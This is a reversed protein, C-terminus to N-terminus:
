IVVVKRLGSIRLDGLVAVNMINQDAALKLLLVKLVENIAPPTV